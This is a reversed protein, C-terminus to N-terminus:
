QAVEGSILREVAAADWLLRRNPLKVPRLGLYHGDRCLAARITQSKVRLWEAFEDTTLPRRATATNRPAKPVAQTTLEM